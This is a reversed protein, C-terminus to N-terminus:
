LRQLYNIALLQPPTIIKTLTRIQSTKGSRFADKPCSSHCLLTKHCFHASYLDRSGIAGKFEDLALDRLRAGARHADLNFGATNAVAVRQDLTPRHGSQFVWANRSMLHHAGNICYARADRAHCLTLTYTYTPVASIATVTICTPPAIKKSASRPADGAQRV